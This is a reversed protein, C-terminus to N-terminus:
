DDSGTLHDATISSRSYDEPEHVCAVLHFLERLAMSVSLDGGHCQIAGLGTQEGTARVAHDLHADGM